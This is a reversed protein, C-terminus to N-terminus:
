CIEHLCDSGYGGHLFPLERLPRPREPPVSPQHEHAGHPHLGHGARRVDEAGDRRHDLGPQAVVLPLHGRQADGLVEPAAEAKEGARERRRPRRPRQEGDAGRLVEEAVSAEPEDDGPLRRRQGEPQYASGSNSSSTNGGCFFTTSFFFLLSKTSIDPGRLVQNGQGM